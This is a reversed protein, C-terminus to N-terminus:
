AVVEGDVEVKVLAVVVMFKVPNLIPVVYM